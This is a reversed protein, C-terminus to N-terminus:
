KWMCFSLAVTAYCGVYVVRLLHPSHSISFSSLLFISSYCTDGFGLDGVVMPDRVRDLGDMVILTLDPSSIWAM